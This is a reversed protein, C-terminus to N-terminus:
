ITQKKSNLQILEKCIKSILGKNSMDNAFIREWETPQRKTKNIAEKATCFRRLKIYDRKNIKAKTERVQPSLKLFMNSLCIDFLTSGINGELLRITERKVNLDYICKSNVKACTLFHDLIM